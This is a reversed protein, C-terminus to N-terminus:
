GDLGIGNTQRLYAGSLIAAEMCDLLVRYGVDLQDPLRASADIREIPSRFHMRVNPMGRWIDATYMQGLPVSPIGMEYGDATSLFGLWFVQFGHTAAMRDLDENIASVLVQRWFREIARPTQRKEKLWDLM